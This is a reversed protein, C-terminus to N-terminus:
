GAGIAGTQPFSANIKKLEALIQEESGGKLARSLRNRIITKNVPKPMKGPLSEIKTNIKRMEKLMQALTKDSMGKKSEIPAPMPTDKEKEPSTIFINIDPM